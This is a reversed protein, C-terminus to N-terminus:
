KDAATKDTATAIRMIKERVERASNDLESVTNTYFKEIEDGALVDEIM